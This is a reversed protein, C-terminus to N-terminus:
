PLHSMQRPGKSTKGQPLTWWVRVERALGCLLQLRCCAPSHCKFTNQAFCYLGTRTVVAWLVKKNNNIKLLQITWSPNREHSIWTANWLSLLRGCLQVAWGLTCAPHKPTEMIWSVRIHVVPDRFHTHSRKTHMCVHSRPKYDWKFLTKYIQYIFHISCKWASDKM